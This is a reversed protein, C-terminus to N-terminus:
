IKQATMERKSIIITAESEGNLQVSLGSPLVSACVFVSFHQQAYKDKDGLVVLMLEPPLVSLLLPLVFLCM